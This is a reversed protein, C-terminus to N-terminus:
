NGAAMRRCLAEGKASGVVFVSRRDVPNPKRRALGLTGLRDVARTVSPKAINLREALGKVTHPGDITVCIMVVSLQRSTLDPGSAKVMNLISQQLQLLLSDDDPTKPDFKM